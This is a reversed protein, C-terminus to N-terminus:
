FLRPLASSFNTTVPSRATGPAPCLGAVVCGEVWVVRCGCTTASNLPSSVSRHCGRGGGNEICFEGPARPLKGHEAEADHHHDSDDVGCIMKEGIKRSDVRARNQGVQQQPQRQQHSEAKLEYVAEVVGRIRDGGDDVRMRHFRVDGDDPRAEPIKEAYQGGAASTAKPM